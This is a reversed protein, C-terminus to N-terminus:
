QGAGLFRDSLVLYEITITAGSSLSEDNEVVYMYQVRLDHWIM